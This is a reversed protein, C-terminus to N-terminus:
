TVLTAQGCVTQVYGILLWNCSTHIQEYCEQIAHYPKATVRITLHYEWVWLWIKVDEWGRFVVTSLNWNDQPKRFCVMLRDIPDRVNVRHLVASISVNSHFTPNSGVTFPKASRRMRGSQWLWMLQPSLPIRVGTYIVRYVTKLVAANSWEAM